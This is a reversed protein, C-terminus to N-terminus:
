IEQLLNKGTMISPKPINMLSLITPAIDTLDWSHLVIWPKQTVLICPVPNLTHQTHISGDPNKMIDANGHDAIIMVDYGKLQAINVVRQLCQDVTEIAEVVASFVWTHGVMDPNAFNIVIFDPQKKWLYKEINEAIDPASMAPALDYTAVKKSPCLIRDEWEYCQEKWWSFFFTVHPYKETEAVRLQTKWLSSIVEWLTDTLAEKPFMIQVDRFTEDYPTLCVYEIDLPQMDYGDISTQTLVKTIEKVRDSRYNMCIVVDGDEICAIPDDHQDICVIPKMFEDTEWKDYRAQITTLIDHTPEGIGDVLLSYAEEVRERRNDRDMAYYRWILSAVKAGYMDCATQITKVFWLASTPDTDRGDSFVHLFVDAVWQTHLVKIMHQIHDVHAHVGGDSLLWLLHIPKNYEIAYRITQQLVTNDYISNDSFSKSIKGIDQYVIRGAGIHMHWVESNGMQGIPLWVAEGHTVLTTHPYTMWLEDYFPTKAKAIASIDPNDHIGRGDLIVLMVKQDISM